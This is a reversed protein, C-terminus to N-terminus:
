IIDRENKKKLKNNIIQIVLNFLAIALAISAAIFYKLMPDMICLIIFLIGIEIVLWVASIISFLEKRKARKSQAYIAFIFHILIFSYEILLTFFADKGEETLDKAIGVSALILYFVGYCSYYLLIIFVLANFTKAIKEIKNNSKENMKNNRM